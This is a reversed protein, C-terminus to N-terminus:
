VKGQHKRNRCSDLHKQQAQVKSRAARLIQLNKKSPSWKYDTLATHKLDVVQTIKTSKAEFWDHLKSTKKGFTALAIRHM